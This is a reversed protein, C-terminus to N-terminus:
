SVKYDPFKIIEKMVIRAPCSGKRALAEEGEEQLSFMYLIFVQRVVCDCVQGSNCRYMVNRNKEIGVALM